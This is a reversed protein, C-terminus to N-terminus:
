EVDEGDRIVYHGADGVSWRGAGVDDLRENVTDIAVVGVIDGDQLLVEGCLAGVPLAIGHGVKGDELQLCLSM